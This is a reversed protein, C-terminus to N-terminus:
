RKKRRLVYYKTGESTGAVELRAGCCASQQRGKALGLELGEACGALYKDKEEKSIHPGFHITSCVKEIWQKEQEKTM